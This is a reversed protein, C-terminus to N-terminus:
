GAPRPRPRHPTFAATRTTTAAGTAPREAAPAPAPAPVRVRRPTLYLTTAIFLTWLLESQELIVKETISYVALFALLLVYWTGVADRSNILRRWV